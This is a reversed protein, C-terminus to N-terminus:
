GAKQLAKRRPKGAEQARAARAMEVSARLAAMLNVVKTPPAVPVEEMPEGEIKKGILEMLAARYDDKYKELQFSETLNEILSTAMTLEKPNISVQESTPLELEAQSRVEDAYYMTEMVLVQDVARVAVLHEKERLVVKGVAVKGAEKIAERLLVFAKEGNEDPALYYAKEFYIPDIEALDVFELINIAHATELPIAELEEPELIVYKGKQYEYGKVVDVWEVRQDCVPCYREMQIRSHCKKHLLHFKVDKESIATFVRVPITVLGFSLVGTWISRM